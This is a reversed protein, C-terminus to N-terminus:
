PKYHKQREAMNHLMCANRAIEALCNKTEDDLKEQMRLMNAIKLIIDTKNQVNEIENKSM